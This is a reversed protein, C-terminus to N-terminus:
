IHLDRHNTGQSSIPWTQLIARASWPIPWLGNGTAHFTGGSYPRGLSLGGVNGAVTTVQGQLTIHGLKTDGYEDYQCFLSNEDSSWQINGVDRDLSGSIMRQNSGNAEMVYLQQVQYGQYTDDFGTYAIYKGSPSIVPSNDPGQRSTLETIESTAIDVRCVESNRPDFEWDAHRNASFIISKSDPMWSLRGGHNYNGSTIQRATGGEISMVFIHRFGTKLYGAGDARYYMEDIYKPQDAWEAGEPKAPMSAPAPHTTPVFMSFAIWKGDPSWSLGGPSQTFNSLRAETGTAVWRRYIQSSGDKGSLYILETGDANWRPAYDRQKGTTVPMHGSGDTKIMWLNSLNADKMVDKYNRVYVIHEGDPSIRPDSAYEIEFVDMAQFRSADNNSQSIAVQFFLPLCFLLCFRHM